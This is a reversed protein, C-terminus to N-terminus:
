KLKLKDLASTVDGITGLNTSQMVRAERKRAKASEARQKVEAVKIEYPVCTIHAYYACLAECISVFNTSTECMEYISSVTARILRYIPPIRSVDDKNLFMYQCDKISITYGHPGLYKARLISVMMGYMKDIYKDVNGYFGETTGNLEHGYTTLVKVLLHAKSISNGTIFTEVIKLFLDVEADNFIGSEVLKAKAEPIIRSTQAQLWLEYRRKEKEELVNGVTLAKLISHVTKWNMNTKTDIYKSNIFKKTSPVFIKISTMKDDNEWVEHTTIETDRFIFSAQQRFGGKENAYKSLVAREAVAKNWSNVFEAQM